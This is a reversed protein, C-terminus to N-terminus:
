LDGTLFQAHGNGFSWDSDTNTFISVVVDSPAINCSERLERCLDRYFAQKARQSRPRSFATIVVVNRTRKIGLGTDEVILCSARHEQYVQYRDRVPVKFASLVARHVADLLRKIQAQSRGKVADIRILPM